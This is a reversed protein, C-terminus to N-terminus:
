DWSAVFHPFALRTTVTQPHDYRRYSWNKHAFDAGFALPRIIPRIVSGCWGNISGYIRSCTGCLHVMIGQQNNIENVLLM